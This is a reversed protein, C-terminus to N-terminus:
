SLPPQNCSLGSSMLFLSDILTDPRFSPIPIRREVLELSMKAMSKGLPKFGSDLLRDRNRPTGAFSLFRVVSGSRLECSRSLATSQWALCMLLSKTPNPDMPGAPDPKEACAEILLNPTPSAFDKSTLEYTARRGDLIDQYAADRLPLVISMGVRM